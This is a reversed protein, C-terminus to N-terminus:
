SAASTHEYGFNKRACNGCFQLIGGSPLLVSVVAQATPHSDCAEWGAELDLPTFVPKPAIPPADKVDNM